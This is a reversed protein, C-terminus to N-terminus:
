QKLNVIVMTEPEPSGDETWYRKIKEFMKGTRETEDVLVSRSDKEFERDLLNVTFKNNEFKISYGVQKLEEEIWSPILINLTKNKENFHIVFKDLGMLTAHAVLFVRREDMSLETALKNFKEKWLDFGQRSIQGLKDGPVFEEEMNALSKEILLKLENENGGSLIHSIYNEILSKQVEPNHRLGKLALYITENKFNEFLSLIEEKNLNGNRYKLAYRVDSPLFKQPSKEVPRLKREFFKM